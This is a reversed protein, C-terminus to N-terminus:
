KGTVWTGVGSAAVRGLGAGVDVTGTFGPKFSVRAILKNNALRAITVISDPKPSLTLTETTLVDSVAVGRTREVVEATVSAMAAEDDSTAGSDHPNFFLVATAGHLWIHRVMEDWWPTGGLPIPEGADSTSSKFSLWPMMPSRYLQIASGRCRNVIHGMLIMPDLWDIAPFRLKLSNHVIGYFQPSQHTGILTPTAILAGWEDAGGCGFPAHSFYYQSLTAMPFSARLPAFMAANFYAAHLGGTLWIWRDQEEASDLLRDLSFTGTGALSQLEAFRPDALIAALSPETFPFGAEVDLAVHDITAGAAKISSFLNTFTSTAAAVGADPWLGFHTGDIKDADNTYIHNGYNPQLVRRGAPLALLSAAAAAPTEVNESIRVMGTMRARAVIPAHWSFINYPPISM